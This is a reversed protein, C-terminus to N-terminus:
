NVTIKIDGIDTTIECKGGTESKPVDINGTDTHTIFVKDTLLSGIVDGTDTEVFIETADSDEFRVTGTSRKIWLKETAIVNKLFIGGTSGSSTVNKCKIDTLNTKGTSVKINIDDECIVDSVTIGGTSVSLDLIGASINEVRINGTTTKIKILKSASAFFKVHGTSLSINGGQFKFDSPIEVNGISGKIFLSTYEAKPLYVTIKSTNFNIGIYQYWKRDDVAEITLTGDQVHVSHKLNEQEYCVVRCVEDNSVAFFIDSTDTNMSISDFDESIEYTNTEYKETSLKTFDWNCAWMVAVLITFGILVLSTAIMFWIKNTKDM